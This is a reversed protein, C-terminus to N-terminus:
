NVLKAQDKFCTKVTERLKILISQSITLYKSSLALISSFVAIIKEALSSSRGMVHPLTDMLLYFCKEIVEMSIYVVSQYYSDLLKHFVELAYEISPILSVTFVKDGEEFGKYVLLFDGESKDEMREKMQLQLDRNRSLCGLKALLKLSLSSLDNNIKEPKLDGSKYENIVM